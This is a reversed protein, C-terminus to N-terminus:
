TFAAWRLPACLTLNWQHSIGWIPLGMFVSLLNTTALPQPFPCHCTIALPYLTEKPPSPFIKFNITAIIHSESFISFLVSNSTKIPHIRHYTLYMETYSNGFYFAWPSAAVPFTVCHTVNISVHADWTNVVATGAVQWADLTGHSVWRWM